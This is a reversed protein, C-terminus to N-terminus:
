WYYEKQWPQKQYTGASRDDGMYAILGTESVLLGRFLSAFIQRRIETPLDMFRFPQEPMPLAKGGCARPHDRRYRNWLQIGRRVNYDPALCDLHKAKIEEIIRDESGDESM